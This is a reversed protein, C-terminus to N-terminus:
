PKLSFPGSGFYAILLAGGIIVMNKMFMIMQNMSQMQDEIGWFRHMYFSTPILFIVLLWAGVKPHYGLLISLGGALIMLGTLPVALEAMPVGASKAYPVMETRKLLHNMSSMLFFSSFLIRGILPIYDM